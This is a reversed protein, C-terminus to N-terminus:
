VFLPGSGRNLEFMLLVVVVITPPVVFVIVVSTFGPFRTTSYITVVVVISGRTNYIGIMVLIM